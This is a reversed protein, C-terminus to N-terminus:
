HFSKLHNMKTKSITWSEAGYFLISQIIAKYFTAVVKPNANTKKQVVKGISGWTAQAKHVQREVVLLDNNNDTIIQRLYKLKSVKKVPQNDIYFRVHTAANQILEQSRKRRITTYQKCKNSDIYQITNSFEVIEVNHYYDSKSLSSSTTPHHQSGFHRQM